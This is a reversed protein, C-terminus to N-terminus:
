RMRPSSIVRAALAGERALPQVLETGDGEVLQRQRIGAVHAVGAVGRVAPDGDEVGLAVAGGLVDLVGGAGQSALEGAGDVGEPADLM